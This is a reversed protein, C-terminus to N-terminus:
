PLNVQRAGSASSLVDLHHAGIATLARLGRHGM